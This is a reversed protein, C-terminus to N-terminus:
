GHWAHADVIVTGVEAGGPGQRIALILEFGATAPIPLYIGLLVHTPELTRLRTAHRKSLETPPMAEVIKFKVPLRADLTEHEYKKASWVFWMTAAERFLSRKCLCKALVAVERATRAKVEKDCKWASPKNADAYVTLSAGSTRQLQAVDGHGVALLWARAAVRAKAVDPPAKAATQKDSQDRLAVPTDSRVQHEGSTQGETAPGVAESQEKGETRTARKEAAKEMDKLQSLIKAYDDLMEGCRTAGFEPTKQKVFKCTQTGPGLDGCLRSILQDCAGNLVVLRSLSYAIDTLGAACAKPPLLGVVAHIQKCTTAAVDPMDCLAKAYKDCGARDADSVTAKPEAAIVSTTLGTAFLASAVLIVSPVPRLLHHRSSMNAEPM